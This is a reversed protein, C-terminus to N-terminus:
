DLMRRQRVWVSGNTTFPSSVILPELSEHMLRHKPYNFPETILIREVWKPDNIIFVRMAPLWFHGLLMEYSKHSLM